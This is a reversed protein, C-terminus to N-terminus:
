PNVLRYFVTGKSADITTTYPNAAAPLRIWNTTLGTNLTNTQAQLVWGQGAPWSLTLQNGAVVSTISAPAPASGSQYNTLIVSTATYIVQYSASASNAVAVRGSTVNTFAGSVSGATLITFGSGATPTFNNNVILSGNM